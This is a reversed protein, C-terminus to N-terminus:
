RRGPAYGARRLEATMCEADAASDEVILVNLPRAADAEHPSM